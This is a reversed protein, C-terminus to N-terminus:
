TLLFPMLHMSYKPVAWMLIIEQGKLRKLFLAGKEAYWKVRSEPVRSGIVADESVGWFSKVDNKRQTMIVESCSSFIM